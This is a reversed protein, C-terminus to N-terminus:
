MLFALNLVLASCSSTAQNNIAAISDIKKNLSEIKQSIDNAKKLKKIDM